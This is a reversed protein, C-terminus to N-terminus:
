LYKCSQKTLYNFYLIDQKTEELACALKLAWLLNKKVINKSVATSFSILGAKVEWCCLCGGEYLAVLHGAAPLTEGARM